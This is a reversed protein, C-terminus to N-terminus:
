SVFAFLCVNFYSFTTRAQETETTTIEGYMSRDLKRQHTDKVAWQYVENSIDGREENIDVHVYCLM